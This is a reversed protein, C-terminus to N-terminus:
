IHMGHRLVVPRCIRISPFTFLGLNIWREAGLRTRYAHCISIQLPKASYKLNHYEQMLIALSVLAGKKEEKLM